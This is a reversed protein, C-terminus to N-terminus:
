RQQANGSGCFRSDMKTSGELLLGPALNDDGNAWFPAPGVSFNGSGHGVIKSRNGQAAM